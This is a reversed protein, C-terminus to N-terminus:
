KLRCFISKTYEFITGGDTAIRDFVAYSYWKTEGDAVDCYRIKVDDVNNDNYGIIFMAHGVQIKNHEWPDFLTMVLHGNNICAKIQNFSLRNNYLVFDSSPSYYNLASQIEEVTGGENKIEGKVYRVADSQSSTVTTEGRAVGRSSAVWCWSDREQTESIAYFVADGKVMETFSFSMTFACLGVSVIRKINKISHNSIFNRKM